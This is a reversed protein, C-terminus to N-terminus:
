IFKKVKAPKSPNCRALNSATNGMAPESLGWANRIGMRQGSVMPKSFVIELCAVGAKGGIPRVKITRFQAAAKEICVELMGPTSRIEKGLVFV